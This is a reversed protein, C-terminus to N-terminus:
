SRQVRGGVVPQRMIEAFAAVVADAFPPDNVNFPL